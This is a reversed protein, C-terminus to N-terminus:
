RRTSSTTKPSSCAFRIGIAWRRARRRPSPGRCRRLRRDSRRSLRSRSARARARGRERGLDPRRAAGGAQPLDRPRPRHRRVQPDDVRRGPQVFHVASRDSRRSHRHRHRGGHIAARVLRVRTAADRRGHGHHRRGGHVQDRQEAPQLPDPSCAHHRERGRGAARGRDSVDPQPGKRVSGARGARARRRRVGESRVAASRSGAQRRRDELFGPHRQHDDAARRREDPDDRRLRAAGADAQTDLLLSTMGIVGNM